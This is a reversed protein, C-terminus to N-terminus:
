ARFIVFPPNLMFFSRASTSVSAITKETIAMDPQGTILGSAPMACVALAASLAFATLKKPMDKM